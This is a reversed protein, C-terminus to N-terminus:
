SKSFNMGISMVWISRWAQVQMGQSGTEPITVSGQSINVNNVFSESNFKLDELTKYTSKSTLVRWLAFEVPFLELSAIRSSTRIVWNYNKQIQSHSQTATANGMFYDPLLMLEPSNGDRVVENRPDYDPTPLERSFKIRNGERVLGTLTDDSEVIDWLADYIM